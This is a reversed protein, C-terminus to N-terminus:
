MTGCFLTLTLEKGGQMGGFREHNQRLAPYCPSFETRGHCLNSDMMKNYDITLLPIPQITGLNLTEM